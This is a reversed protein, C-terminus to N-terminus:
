AEAFVAGAQRQAAVFTRTADLLPAASQVEQAAVRNWYQQSTSLYHTVDNRYQEYALWLQEVRPMYEVAEACDTSALLASLRLAHAESRELSALLSTLLRGYPELYQKKIQESDSFRFREETHFQALFRDTEHTVTAIEECFDRCLLSLAELSFPM